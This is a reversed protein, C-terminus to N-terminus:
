KLGKEKMCFTYWYNEPTKITQDGDKKEVVAMKMCGDIATNQVYASAVKYVLFIAVLAILVSLGMQIYKQM